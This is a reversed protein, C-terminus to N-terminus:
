HQPGQSKVLRALIDLCKTHVSTEGLTGHILRNCHLKQRPLFATCGEVGRDILKLRNYSVSTENTKSPQHLEHVRSLRGHEDGEVHTSQVDPRKQVRKLWSVFSKSLMFM